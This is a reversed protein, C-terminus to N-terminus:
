SSGYLVDLLIDEFVEGFSRLSSKALIGILNKWPGTVSHLWITVSLCRANKEAFVQGFVVFFNWALVEWLIRTCADRVFEEVTGLMLSVNVFINVHAGGCCSPVSTRLSSFTALAFRFCVSRRLAPLFACWANRSFSYRAVALAIWCACLSSLARLCYSFSCRAARLLWGVPVSFFTDVYASGLFVSLFLSTWLSMSFTSFLEM